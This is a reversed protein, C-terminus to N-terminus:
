RMLEYAGSATIRVRPIVKTKAFAEDIPALSRWLALTDADTTASALADLGGDHLARPLIHIPVTAGRARADHV